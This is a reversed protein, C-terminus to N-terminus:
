GTTPSKGVFVICSRFFGAVDNAIPQGHGPYIISIDLGAIRELSDLYAKSYSGENDTIRFISDGSFLTRTTPIYVCISDESHGPTHLLLADQDGVRLHMGDHIPAHNGSLPLWSFVMPSYRSEILPLGGSHDSHEHTIIVQEIAKKGIGKSLSSMEGLIYSTNEVSPSGADVLTNRDTASNNDGLVWYCVCSYDSADGRHLAVIRM